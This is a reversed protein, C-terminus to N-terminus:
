RPLNQRIVELVRQNQQQVYSIVAESGQSDVSTVDGGLLSFIVYDDIREVMSGQIKDLNQPYQMTDERMAKQRDLLAQEVADAQGQAAKVILLMDINTSILPMEGMFDDYMDSTLNFTSELYEATMESQPFYDDGLEEKVADRLASMEESWGTNEGDAPSGEDSGAVTSQSESETGASSETSNEVSDLGASANSNDEKDGCGALSTLMAAMCLIVLLKKM